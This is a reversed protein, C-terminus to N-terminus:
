QFLWGREVLESLLLGSDEQSQSIPKVRAPGTGQHREIWLGVDKALFNILGPNHSIILIQHGGNESFDDMSDMWPQIEPLALFNEPEDVCLCAPGDSLFALVAYLVILAKQGDSLMDFPIEFTKGNAHRFDVALIKAEGAPKLKISDFGPLIGSLRDFLDVMGRTNVQSHYRYWSAFNSLDRQLFDAEARTETQMIAPNMQLVLVRRLREKFWTLKRNSPHERLFGVGSQSWDMPFQPGEKHDDKYLQAEGERVHFLPRGDLNLSEERVRSLRRESDHEIDLKYQYTGREQDDLELEFHQVMSGAASEWRTFDKLPFLDAVRGERVIFHVLRDLVLFVTSKGAGNPGLLLNIQGLNIEFNVFCLFNNIYIKKIM